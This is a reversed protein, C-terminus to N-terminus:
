NLENTKRRFCTPVNTLMILLNGQHLFPANKASSTLL